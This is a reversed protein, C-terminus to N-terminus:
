TRLNLLNQLSFQQKSAEKQDTEYPVEAVRDVCKRIYRTPDFSRRNRCNLTGNEPVVADTIELPEIANKFAHTNRGTFLLTQVSGISKGHTRCIRNLANEFDESRLKRVESRTSFQILGWKSDPSRFGHVLVVHIPEGPYNLLAYEMLQLSEPTFDTPILVNRM